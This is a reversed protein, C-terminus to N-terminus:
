ASWLIARAAETAAAMSPFDCAQPWRDNVSHFLPFGAGIYSVFRGGYQAVVGAEGLPRATVDFHPTLTAGEFVPRVAEMLDEDGTRVMLRSDAAGVNAGLHLWYRAETALSPDAEFFIHIGLYGIEHGTTALFVVDSELPEAVILRALELWVALGGGREGACHWWGSRPTLVVLPPLSSDRGPVRARVNFITLDEHTAGVQLTAITQAQAAEKIQEWTRIPVQLVPPGFPDRYRWANLLTHGTEDGEVAVIVAANGALRAQEFQAEDRHQNVRMARIVGPGDTLSLRGEIASGSAPLLSDTLPYGDVVVNGARLQCVEDPIVRRFPYRITEAELGLARVRGVLWEASAADVATGTRHIGQADYERVTDSLAAMNVEITATM